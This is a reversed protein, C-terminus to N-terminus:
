VQAFSRARSVMTHWGNFNATNSIFALEAAPLRERGAGTVSSPGYENQIHWMSVMPSPDVELFRAMAHVVSSDTILAEYEIPLLYPQYLFPLVSSVCANWHEVAKRAGWDSNWHRGQARRGEYSLAVDFIDRFIVILKIPRFRDVLGGIREFARPVKDGVYRAGGCHERLQKAHNPFFDLSNYYTDGPRVDLFRPVDFDAPTLLDDLLRQSYREMGIAVEPSALLITQLYSTGSRPCGFVFLFERRTMQSVSTAPVM